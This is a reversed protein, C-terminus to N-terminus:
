EVVAVARGSVCTFRKPQGVSDDSVQCLIAADIKRVAHQGVIDVFDDIVRRYLDDHLQNTTNVFCLGHHQPQQFVAFVDDGGVFGEHRLM